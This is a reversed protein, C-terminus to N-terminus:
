ATTCGLPPAVGPVDLDGAPEDAELVVADGEPPGVAVAPSVAEPPSPELPGPMRRGITMAASTAPTANATMTSRPGREPGGAGGAGGGDM